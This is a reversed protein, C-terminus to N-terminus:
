IAIYESSQGFMCSVFLKRGLNKGLGAVAILESDAAFVVGPPTGFCLV